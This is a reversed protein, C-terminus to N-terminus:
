KKEATNINELRKRAKITHPNVNFDEEAKRKKGNNKLWGRKQPTSRIFIQFQIDSEENKSNNIKTNINQNFEKKVLVTFDM